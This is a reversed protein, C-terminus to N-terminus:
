SVWDNAYVMEKRELLRWIVILFLVGLVDCDVLRGSALVGAMPM